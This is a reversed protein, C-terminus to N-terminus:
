GPPLQQITEAAKLWVAGLIRMVAEGFKRVTDSDLVGKMGLNIASGIALRKWQGRKMKGAETKLLEIEKRFEELTRATLNQEKAFREALTDLESRLKGVEDVTFSENENTLREAAPAEDGLLVSWFDPADRDANLRSLWAEFLAKVERWDLDGDTAALGNGDPRYSATLKGTSIPTGFTRRQVIEEGIRFFYRPNPKCFFTPEKPGYGSGDSSLCHFALEDFSIGSNRIIAALDAAQVRTLPGDLEKSPNWGLTDNM